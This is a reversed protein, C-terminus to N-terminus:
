FRAALVACTYGGLIACAGSLLSMLAMLLGTHWLQTFSSGSTGLNLMEAALTPIFLAGAVDLLLAIITAALLGKYPKLFRLLLRM